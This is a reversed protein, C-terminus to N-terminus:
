AQLVMNTGLVIEQRATRHYVAHFSERFDTIPQVSAISALLAPDSALLANAQELLRNFWRIAVTIGTGGSGARGATEPEIKEAEARLVHFQEYLVRIARPDSTMASYDLAEVASVWGATGGGGDCLM